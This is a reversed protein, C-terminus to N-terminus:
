GFITLEATYNTTGSSERTILLDTLFLITLLQAYM